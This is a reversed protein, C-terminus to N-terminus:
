AFALGNPRLAELRREYFTHAQNLLYGEVEQDTFSVTEELLSLLRAFFLPVLAQAVAGAAAGGHVHHRVLSYVIQCWTDPGIDTREREAMLALDAALSPPLADRYFPEHEHFGSTFQRMMAAKDAPVAPLPVEPVPDMLVAPSTLLRRVCLSEHHRSVQQLLTAVVEAVMGGLTARDRKRHIKAGLAVGCMKSRNAIAETTLFIDIGFRRAPEPYDCAALHGILGASFGFEGAIPQRVHSSFLGHVAPYCVLSTLSGDYRYRRYVPFTFDYGEELIPGILNRVWRPSVSELDADVIAGARVGMDAALAMFNRVNHGKGTVGQETSVYRTASRTTTSMFVERTGDSSNNDVNVVLARLHPFYEQLGADVQALVHSISHAENLSPIGVVIDFSM